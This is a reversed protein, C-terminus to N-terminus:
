LLILAATLTAMVMEDHLDSVLMDDRDETPGILSHDLSSRFKSGSTQLYLLLPISFEAGPVLINRSTRYPFNYTFSKKACKGGLFILKAM